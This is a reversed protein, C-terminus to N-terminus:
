TPPNYRVKDFNSELTCGLGDLTRRIDEDTHFHKDTTVFAKPTAVRRQLHAMVTAFIMAGQDELNFRKMYDRSEVIIEATLPEIEAFKRLRAIVNKLELYEEQTKDILATFFPSENTLASLKKTRQLLRLEEKALGVFKDRRDFQSEYTKFAEALSYAPIVLGIKHLEAEKLFYECSERFEQSYAIHLIFNTEVYLTMM